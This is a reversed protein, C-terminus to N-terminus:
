SKLTELEVPELSYIPGYLSQKGEELDIAHTKIETHELLVAASEKSFMDEFDLYEASISISAKDAILTAIQVDRDPHVEKPNFLTAVHIVFAEQKEHLAM